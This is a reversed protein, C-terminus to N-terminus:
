NAPPRCTSRPAASGSACIRQAPLSGLQYVPFDFPACEAGTLSTGLLYATQPRLCTPAAMRTPPGHAADCAPRIAGGGHRRRPLSRTASGGPILPLVVVLAAMLRDSCATICLCFRMRCATSLRRGTATPSAREAERMVKQM